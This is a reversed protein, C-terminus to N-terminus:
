AIIFLTYYLNSSFSCPFIIISYFLNCIRLNEHVKSYSIRIYSYM